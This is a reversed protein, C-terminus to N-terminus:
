DVRSLEPEADDRSGDYVLEYKVTEDATEVVSTMYKRGDRTIYEVSIATPHDFQQLITDIAEQLQPADTAVPRPGDM